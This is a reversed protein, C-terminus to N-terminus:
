IELGITNFLTSILVIELSWIDIEIFNEVITFYILIIAGRRRSTMKPIKVIAVNLIAPTDTVLYM